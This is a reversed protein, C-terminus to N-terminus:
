PKSCGSGSTEKGSAIEWGIEQVGRAANLKVSPKPPNSVLKTKSAADHALHICQHNRSLALGGAVIGAQKFGLDARRHAKGVRRRPNGGVRHVMRKGSRFSKQGLEPVLDADNGDAILAGAFDIAM